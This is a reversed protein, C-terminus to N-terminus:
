YSFEILLESKLKLKAEMKNWILQIWSIADPYTEVLKSCIEPKSGNKRLGIVQAVGLDPYIKGEKSIELLSLSAFYEDCWPKFYNPDDIAQVPYYKLAGRPGPKMKSNAMFSVGFDCAVVMESFPLYLLNDTKLDRHLVKAEVFGPLLSTSLSKFINQKVKLKEHDTLLQLWTFTPPQFPLVM